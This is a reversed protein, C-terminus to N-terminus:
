IVWAYDIMIECFLDFCVFQTHKKVILESISVIEKGQFFELLLGPLKEGSIPPRLERSVESSKSDCDGFLLANVLRNLM